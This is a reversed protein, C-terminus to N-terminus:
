YQLKQAKVIYGIHYPLESNRVPHMGEVRYFAQLEHVATARRPVIEWKTFGTNKLLYEIGAKTYRLYDIEVPNHVPYISPFSIVAYSDNSMMDYINQLARVPDFVYEFVELCFVADFQFFKENFGIEEMQKHLPKNIDFPIYSEVAPEAGNDLYVWDSVKCSGLRKKVPNSAGGIDVAREVNVSLTKLYAELQERYKSM